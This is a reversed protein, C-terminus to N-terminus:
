RDHYKGHGCRRPQCLFIAVHQIYLRALFYILCAFVQPKLGIQHVTLRQRQRLAALREVEQQTAGRAVHHPALFVRQLATTAVTMYIDAFVPLQALVMELAIGARREGGVRGDGDQRAADHYHIAYRLHVGDRGLGHFTIRRLSQRGLVTKVEEGLTAIQDVTDTAHHGELCGVAVAYRFVNRSHHGFVTTLNSGDAANM